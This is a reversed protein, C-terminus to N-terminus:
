RVFVQKGGEMGRRAAHHGFRWALLTELLAFLLLLQILPRWFESRDGEGAERLGAEGREFTSRPAAEVIRAPDARRLDGERPDVNRAHPRQYPAGEPTSLRLLYVGATETRDYRFSLAHSQPDEFLTLDVPGGARTEPPVVSAVRRMRTADFAVDIPAPVDRTEGPASPRAVYRAIEQLLALYLPSLPFNSWEMDAPGAFLLVRGEAFGKEVLAPSQDADAFTLLARGGDRPAECRFYRQFAITKFVIENMGRLFRTVPHDSSPPALHVYEESSGAAEILPVPLLGKGAREGKGWFAANWVEPDVQDGPFLVLGGGARVYEEVQTVREDPLRYVNCLFIADYGSLDRGSFAHEPTVEVDIGSPAPGPAALAAALYDTEARYPDPSPEGDVLLLRLRPRVDAVLRRIDDGPIVDAPVEASVVVPGEARFTYERVVQAEEGPQLTTEIRQGQDVHDGFRFIVSLNTVPDPGHNRITAVFAAPVGAVVARDRPQLDIVGANAVPADGVDLFRIEGRESFRRLAQAVEPRMAGDPGTWDQRRFDSVVHLVVRGTEEKPTELLTEVCGPLDLTGDGPRLADLRDVIRRYNAGAVSVRTYTGEGGRPSSGLLLTVRDGSREDHLRTLLAKVIQRAADFSSRNGVGARMSHSDDLLIVRETTASGGLLGALADGRRSFPRAVALVLLLVMLTRLLLLLLNEMRLRRRNRVAAKLLFEMAAWEMRRFRRRNLLHIIIPLSALALAGLIGPHVFGFGTM